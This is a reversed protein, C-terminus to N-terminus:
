PVFSDFRELVFALSDELARIYEFFNELSEQIDKNGVISCEVFVRLLVMRLCSCTEDFIVFDHPFYLSTISYSLSPNELM